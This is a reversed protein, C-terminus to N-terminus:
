SELYWKPPKSPKKQYKTGWQAIHQKFIRYYLRYAIVINTHHCCMKIAGLTFPTLPQRPLPPPNHIMWLIIKYTKHEKNYRKQYEKCTWYALKLLYEWNSLSERAWITCPHFYHSKNFRYLGEEYPYTDWDYQKVGNLRITGKEDYFAWALMQVYETPMKVVHRNNHYQASKIPNHSLIFINM